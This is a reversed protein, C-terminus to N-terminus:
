DHDNKDLYVFWKERLEKELDINNNQAFLLLHALVDACEAGLDDRIQPITKGKTRGRGTLRLYEANLEGVEEVLKLAYWDDDRRIDCRKAYRDSVLAVKKSLADIPVGSM